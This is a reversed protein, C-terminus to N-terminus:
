RSFWIITDATMRLKSPSQGSEKESKNFTLTTNTVLVGDTM